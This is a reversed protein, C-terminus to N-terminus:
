VTIGAEPAPTQKKVPLKIVAETGRGKKSNFHISGNHSQVIKFSVTLGLGTGKEKSSYFPEGIRNLRDESMGCGTDAVSVRIGQVAPDKWSRSRRVGLVLRGPGPMIADLANGILNAFLQRLEGAFCFLDVDARYSRKIEVQLSNVRGQHLTLVSDLLEGINVTIPLTSQRYFRLTQQAIESVRAVEHQALRLSFGPKVLGVVPVVVFGTGTVYPELSGLVSIHARDLGIEEETERLATAIVDPDEPDVRGGPFSIQGAHNSLHATRKTLIVKEGGDYAVVPVLVAAPVPVRGAPHAYLPFEAESPLPRQRVLRDQLWARSYPNPSDVPSM